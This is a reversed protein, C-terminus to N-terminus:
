ASRSATWTWSSRRPTRRARSWGTRSASASRTTCTSRPTAASWPATGCRSSPTSRAGAATPVARCCRAPWCRRGAPATAERLATVFPGDLPEALAPGVGRPDFAAAYEPLVVLRAGADAGARVAAVAAARNAAADATSRMAVLRVRVVDPRDTPHPTDVAGDPADPRGAPAEGAVREPAEPEPEPRRSLRRMRAVMNLMLFIVAVVVAATVLFGILGPSYDYPQLTSSPSPSPTAAAAVLWGLASM